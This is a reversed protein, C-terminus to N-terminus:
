CLNGIDLTGVTALHFDPDLPLRSTSDDFKVHYCTQEIPIYTAKRSTGCPM